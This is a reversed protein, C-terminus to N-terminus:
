DEDDFDSQSPSKAHWTDSKEMLMEADERGQFVRWLDFRKGSIKPTDKNKEKLDELGNAM